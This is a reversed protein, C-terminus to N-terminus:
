PGCQEAWTKLRADYTGQKLGWELALDYADRASACRGLQLRWDGLQLAWGYPKRDANWAVAQTMWQEAEDLKEERYSVQALYYAASPDQSKLELVQMLYSRAMLYDGMEYGLVGLYLPAYAEQPKIRQAELYAARAEDWRKQQRLLHGLNLWPTTLDPRIEAALRYATEARSWAKIRTWAAGAGMWFDYPKDSLRAGEEYAAAAVGWAKNFEASKAIGWWHSPDNEATRQVLSGWVEAQATPDDQLLGVVRQASTRTPLVEFARRYWVLTADLLGAKKAEDGKWVAYTELAPAVDQPWTANAGVTLLEFWAEKYGGEAAQLWLQTAAECEGNLWLARGTHTKWQVDSRSSALSELFFAADPGNHSSAPCVPPTLSERVPEWALLLTRLAQERALIPSATIWLLVGAILGGVLFGWGRYRALIM